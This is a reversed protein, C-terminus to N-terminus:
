QNEAHQVSSAILKVTSKPVEGVVTVQHDSVVTGYVNVAGMFSTGIFKTTLETLREVYVSVSAIGDSLVIHEVSKPENFVRRLHHKASQFGKPMNKVVWKAEGSDIGVENSLDKHWTFEKGSVTPKLLFSPISEVISIDTFMVREITRNKENLLASSLLLGTDTDIWLKRGYRFNDKPQVLVTKSLRGAIRDDKGLIFRYYNKLADINEPLLSLVSQKGQDKNVIVSKDDTLICTVLNQDRIIERPSGNLHFLRERGGQADASHFIKMSEIKGDHSYVFTGQYNLTKPAAYMRELLELAEVSSDNAWSIVPVVLFFLFKYAPSVTYLNIM